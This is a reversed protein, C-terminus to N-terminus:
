MGGRITFTINTKQRRVEGTPTTLTTTIKAGVGWTPLDAVLDGRPATVPEM